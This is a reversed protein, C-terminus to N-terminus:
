RRWWSYLGAAVGVVAAGALLRGPRWLEVYFSERCAAYGCTFVPAEPGGLLLLAVVLGLAAALPRRLAYSWSAAAAVTLLSAVVISAVTPLIDIIDNVPRPWLAVVLELGGTAAFGAAAAAVITYSLFASAAVVRLAIRGLSYSSLLSYYGQLSYDPSAQAALAGVFVGLVALGVDFSAVHFAVMVPDLPCAQDVAYALGVREGVRAAVVLLGAVGGLVLAPQLAVWSGRSELVGRLLVAFPLVAAAAVALYVLAVYVESGGAVGVSVSVGFGPQFEGEGLGTVNAAVYVPGSGRVKYPGFSKVSGPAVVAEDVINGVTVLAKVPWSHRNTVHVAIEGGDLVFVFRWAADSYGPPVGTELLRFSARPEFVYVFVATSALVLLLFLWLGRL